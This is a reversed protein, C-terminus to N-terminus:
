RRFVPADDPANRWRNNYDNLPSRPSRDDGWRGVFSSFNTERLPILNTSTDWVPGGDGIRDCFVGAFCYPRSAPGPYHAHSGLAVWAHVHSESAILPEWGFGPLTLHPPDSTLRATLHNSLLWIKAPAGRVDNFIRVEVHEWDGIHNGKGFLSGPFRNYRYWFWYRIQILHPDHWSEFYCPTDPELSRPSMDVGFRSWDSGYLSFVEEADSPFCCFDGEEPHFHLVPANDRVLDM